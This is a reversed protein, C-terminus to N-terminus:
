TGCFTQTVREEPRPPTQLEQDAPGVEFPNELARCLRQFPDFDEREVAADIAQEVRHNRAIVAPNARRMSALADPRESRLARWQTLWSVGKHQNAFLELVISNTEGAAVQTLRDFFVTFDMGNEAMATLTIETFTVVVDTNLNTSVGLKQRMGDHFANRFLPEFEGILEGALEAAGAPTEHLLPLLTESFRTLNWYAISPQQDWAYRGFQDISSFVKKPHFEDMCACPGYDITEGVISMNDTNMVGHIFGVLMWQAVLSAQREVVADLLELYKYPMQELEPFHNTIVFDALAQVGHVDLTSSAYQFTGVRIHSSATRVLIAGPLARERIVDEGAGIVAISRTTPIGLGAMAESVVYERLVAGLAARGDGGRSFETRGSGKLQVDIVSGDAAVMQGLMHARGDGLLPVWQGFQHGSYALAIPQNDDNVSNGSMVSLGQESQFWTADIEYEGLLRHNVEILTPAAIPTPNSEAFLATPLDRYHQYVIPNTLQVKVNVDM